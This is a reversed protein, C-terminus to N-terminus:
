IFIVPTRFASVHLFLYFERHQVPSSGGVQERQLPPKQDLVMKKGASVACALGPTGGTVNLIGFKKLFAYNSASKKCFISNMESGISLPLSMRGKHKIFFKWITELKDALYFKWELKDTLYCRYFLLCDNLFCANKDYSFRINKKKNRVFQLLPIILNRRWIIKTM